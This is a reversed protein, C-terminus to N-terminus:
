LDYVQEFIDHLVLHTSIKDIGIIIYWYLLYKSM